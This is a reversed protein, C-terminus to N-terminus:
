RLAEEIEALVGDAGGEGLLTRLMPRLGDLLAPVEALAIEEPRRKLIKDAFTKVALRATSPGIYTALKEAIVESPM